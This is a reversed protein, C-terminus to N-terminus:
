NDSPQGSTIFAQALVEISSDFNWFRFESLEVLVPCGRPLARLHIILHNFTIEAKNNAALSDSPM